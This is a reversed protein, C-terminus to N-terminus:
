NSFVTFRVGGHSHDDKKNKVFKTYNNIFGISENNAIHRVNFGAKTPCPGLVWETREKM